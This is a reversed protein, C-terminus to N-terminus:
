ETLPLPLRRPRPREDPETTRRTMVVGLSTRGGRGVAAPNALRGRRARNQGHESAGGTSPSSCGNLGEHSPQCQRGTRDGRSGQGPPNKQLSFIARYGVRRAIARGSGPTRSSCSAGSVLRLRLVGAWMNLTFSRGQSMWGAANAGTSGPSVM